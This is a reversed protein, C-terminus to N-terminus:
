IGGISRLVINGLIYLIIVSIVSIFIYFLMGKELNNAIEHFRELEDDGEKISVLTSSLIFIVEILYVGIVIQLWYPAIMESVKFINVINILSLYSGEGTNGLSLTSLLSNLGVLITTIMASLGVIIGSLMPALFVMNSKMDSIIEALLDKMRNEIKQINKVYESISFLSKAAIQSGKKISEVLIKMSIAIFSSPFFVIAGRERNFIADQVSMGLQHINQSILKFFGESASGRTTEAVKSFAIEAPMGDGLRNGLQFLSSTFSEEVEKYKDREKILEKTKLKFSIIFFLSFSFPIFLSLLTSVVGFPGKIVENESIFGFLAVDNFFFFNKIIIDKTAFGFQKYIDTYMWIIPITGILFFPFSILFAKLYVKKDKYKPYLPNKELYSKNGYGGPRLSIINWTLYMVILPIIINFLFILHTPKIAGQLMASALPFIALSLTPLVIGLMYINTLPSKVEHTYKLMKDYVGDLIVQLARELFAIRREESPEFLSSEILQFAEIFELSYGRWTKELYDDLSQKVTSYKGIEVDWFIKKFDLSLPPDLHEAAFAIAKELNSTNKMYIVIYLIAPVMQSSAKLRWAIAKREPINYVIYFLFLSGVTNLILLGFPFDNVGSSTFFFWYTLLLLLGFFFSIFFVFFALSVVEYPEISLRASEIVKRLREEDKKSIKLKIIKGWYNCMKEYFSLKPIFSEKFNIYSSSYKRNFGRIENELKSSYKEILERSDKEM